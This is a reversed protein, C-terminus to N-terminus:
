SPATGCQAAPSGLSSRPKPGKQPTTGGCSTGPARGILGPVMTNPSVELISAAGTSGGASPASGRHLDLAGQRRPQQRGGKIMGCPKQGHHTVTFGSPTVTPAQMPSHLRQKDGTTTTVGKRRTVVPFTTAPLHPLKHSDAGRHNAPHMDRLSTNFSRTGTSLGNTNTQVPRVVCTHDGWCQHVGVTAPEDRPVEVGM